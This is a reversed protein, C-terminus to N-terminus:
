VSATLAQQLRQLRDQQLNQQRQFEQAQQRQQQQMEQLQRMIETAQLVQTPPAVAQQPPQVQQQQQQGQQLPLQPQQQRKKNNNRQQIPPYDALTIPPPMCYGPPPVNFRPPKPGFKSGQRNTSPRKNNSYSPYTRSYVSPPLQQGWFGNKAMYEYARAKEAQETQKREKAKKARAAKWESVKCTLHWNSCGKRRQVACGADRCLPPHLLTCNARGLPCETHEKISSCVQSFSPSANKDKKKHSEVVTTAGGVCQGTHGNSVAKAYSQESSSENNLAAFRGSTVLPNTPRLKVGGLSDLNKLQPLPEVKEEEKDEVGAATTVELGSEDKGVAEAVPPVPTITPPSPVLSTPVSLQDHHILVAILAEVWTDKVAKTVKTGCTSLEDSIAKILTDHSMAPDVKSRCKHVSAIALRIVTASAAPVGLLAAAAEADGRLPMAVFSTVLPSKRVALSGEKM